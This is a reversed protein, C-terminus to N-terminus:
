VMGTPLHKGTFRRVETASDPWASRTKATDMSAVAPRAKGAFAMMRSLIEEYASDRWEM